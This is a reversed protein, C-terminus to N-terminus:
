RLTTTNIYDRPTQQNTSDSILDQLNRYVIENNFDTIEKIIKQAIIYGLSIPFKHSKEKLLEGADNKYFYTITIFNKTVELEYYYDNSDTIHYIQNIKVNSTDIKPNTNNIYNSQIM